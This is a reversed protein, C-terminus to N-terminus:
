CLCERAVEVDDFPVTQQAFIQVKEHGKGAILLADGPEAMFIGQRIAERRDLEMRVHEPRQFGALVQRAIQEPNERRPNDSTIVSFDAHAEAAAAMGTRRQPDRDGGCGFVVGIRRVGMERIARLTQELAEKTHAYDVFVAIGKGNPVAELRGPVPPADALADRITELSYGFHQGIAIAGLFNYVNFRGIMPISFLTTGMLFETRGELSRLGSIQELGFKCVPSKMGEAMRLCWPDDGNIFIAHGKKSSQDLQLFLRRKAAAYVEVTGHYDLHDPALNTWLAADWEIGDTRGQQLGHSSVELVAAKQGDSVMERLIKQHSVADLTTLPSPYRREGVITEITGSLGCSGRLRQLLHRILYTSTTKGKTGTVGVMFLEHSPNRYFRVALAAEVEEPHPHILQTASSLFPDYLATVIAVAGTQVAQHIFQTGDIQTGRRAIFLFGPALRRSDASLGLIEKEKSGRIAQFDIGQILQKLKM